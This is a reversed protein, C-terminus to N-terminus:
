FKVKFEMDIDYMKKLFDSLIKPITPANVTKTCLFSDYGYVFDLSENWHSKAYTKLYDMCECIFKVENNQLVYALVTTGSVKTEALDHCHMRFPLVERRIAETKKCKAGEGYLVALFHRKAENKDCNSIAMYESLCKDRNRLYDSCEENKFGSKRMLYVIIAYHCNVIDIENYYKSYLPTRVRKSLLIYGASDRPYLRGQSYRQRYVRRNTKWKLMINLIRIDNKDSEDNPNLRSLADAIENSPIYELFTRQKRDGTRFNLM